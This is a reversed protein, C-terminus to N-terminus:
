QLEMVPGGGLGVRGKTDPIKGFSTNIAAYGGPETQTSQTSGLVTGTSNSILFQGQLHMGQADEPLPYRVTARNRSDLPAPVILFFNQYLRCGGLPLQIPSPLLASGLLHFAVGGAFSSGASAVYDATSRPGRVLASVLQPQVFCPVGTHTDKQLDFGVSDLTYGPTAARYILIEILMNKHRVHLFTRSFGLKVDFPAPVPTSNLRPLAVKRRPLVTVHNSGRNRAFETHMGFPSVDTSSMQVAVEFDGFGPHTTGGNGRFALRSFGFRTGFYGKGVLIQIRANPAELFSSLFRGEKTAADRPIVTPQAVATACLLACALTRTLM